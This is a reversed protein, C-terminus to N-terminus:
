LQLLIHQDNSVPVYEGDNVDIENFLVARKNNSATMLIKLYRAKVQNATGEVYVKNPYTSSAKYGADSDICKVDGDNTNENGDGITVVKTWNKLDDSVLIDADRIYNVASDQCYM